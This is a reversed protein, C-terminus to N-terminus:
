FFYISFPRIEFYNNTWLSNSYFLKIKKEKWGKFPFLNGFEGPEYSKMVMYIYCVLQNKMWQKKKIWSRMLLKINIDVMRMWKFYRKEFHKFNGLKSWYKYFKVSQNKKWLIWVKFECFCGHHNNHMKLMWRAHMLSAYTKRLEYSASAHREFYFLLLFFYGCVVCLFSQPETANNMCARAYAFVNIYFSM